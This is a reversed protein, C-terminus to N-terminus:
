PLKSFCHLQSYFQYVQTDLLLEDEEPFHADPSATPSTPITPPEMMLMSQIVKPNDHRSRLAPKSTSGRQEPSEPIAVMGGQM